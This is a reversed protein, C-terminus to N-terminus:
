GRRKRVRATVPDLSLIALVGILPFDAYPFYLVQIPRESPGAILAQRTTRARSRSPPIWARGPPRWVATREVEDVWAFPLRASSSARAQGQEEKGSPAQPDPGRSPASTHTPTRPWFRRPRRWPSRGRRLNSSLAMLGKRAPLSAYGVRDHNPERQSLLSRPSDQSTRPRPAPAGHERGFWSRNSALRNDIASEDGPHRGSRRHRDGPLDSRHVLNPDGRFRHLWLRIWPM